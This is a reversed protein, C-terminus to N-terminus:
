EPPAQDPPRRPPRSRLEDANALRDRLREDEAVQQPPRDWGAAALSGPCADISELTWTRVVPSYGGDAAPQGFRHDIRTRSWLPRGHEVSVLTQRETNIGQGPGHGDTWASVILAYHEGGHEFLAALREKWPPSVCTRDHTQEGGGGTQPDVCASRNCKGGVRMGNWREGVATLRGPVRPWGLAFADEMPDWTRPMCAATPSAPGILERSFYVDRTSGMREARIGQYFLHAPVMGGEPIPGASPEHDPQRRPHRGVVLSAENDDEFRMAPEYSSTLRYAHPCDAPPAQWGLEAAEVEAPQMEIDYPALARDVATQELVNIPAPGGCGIGGLACLVM